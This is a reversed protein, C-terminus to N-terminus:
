VAQRVRVAYRTRDSTNRLAVPRASANTGRKACREFDEGVEGLVSAIDLAALLGETDYRIGLVPADPASHLPM